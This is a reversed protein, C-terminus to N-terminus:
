IKVSMGDMAATTNKFIKRASKQAALRDKFM